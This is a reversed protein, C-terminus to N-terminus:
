PSLLEAKEFDAEAETHKGLAQLAKGRFEYLSSEKPNREIAATFDAVAAELQGLNFYAAGRQRFYM